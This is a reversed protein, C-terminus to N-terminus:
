PTPTLLQRLMAKLRRGEAQFYDREQRWAPFRQEV